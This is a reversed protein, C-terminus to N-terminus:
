LHAELWEDDPPFVYAWGGARSRNTSLPQRDKVNLLQGVSFSRNLKHMRRVHLLNVMDRQGPEDLGYIETDAPQFESLTRNLQDLRFKSLKRKDEWGVIDCMYHVTPLDETTSLFLQVPHAPSPPDEALMVIRSGSYPQLYLTLDPMRQQIRLIEELVNGYVGNLFLAYDRM